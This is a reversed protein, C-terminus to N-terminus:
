LRETSDLREYEPACATYSPTPHGINLFLTSIVTSAITVRETAEHLPTGVAPPPPSPPPLEVKLRVIVSVGGAPAEMRENLTVTVPTVRVGEEPVCTFRVSLGPVGIM